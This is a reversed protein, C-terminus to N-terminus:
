NKSDQKEIVEPFPVYESCIIESFLKNMSYKHKQSFVVKSYNNQSLYDNIEAELNPNEDLIKAIYEEFTEYDSDKIYKPM